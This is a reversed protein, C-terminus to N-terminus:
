YVFAKVCYGLEEFQRRVADRVDNNDITIVLTKGKGSSTVDPETIPYGFLENIQKSSKDWIPCPFAIGKSSCYELCVAMNRGAGYFVTNEGLSTILYRTLASCAGEWEVKGTCFYFQNIDWVRKLILTEKDSYHKAILNYIADMRIQRPDLEWPFYLGEFVGQIYKRCDETVQFAGINPRNLNISIREAVIGTFLTRNAFKRPPEVTTYLTIDHLVVIAGNRLYPLICLFNLSEVPHLHATDLVVFDYGEKSNDLDEIVESPDSGTILTWRDLPLDSHTLAFNGIPESSEVVREEGTAEDTGEYYLANTALDISTLRAGETDKICHLIEASGEGFNVGIELVNKPKYYAILGNLFYREELSMMPHKDVSPNLADLIERKYEEPPIHLESIRLM